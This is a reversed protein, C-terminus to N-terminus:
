KGSKSGGRDTIYLYLLTAGILLATGGIMKKKIGKVKRVYDNVTVIGPNVKRVHLPFARYPHWNRAKPYFVSMYLSQETPFPKFQNLYQYVPGLLQSEITPHTTVLDLSGDYGMGRATSDIFQILGRASGYPNKVLPRFRSEFNILDYLWKKNIGLKLATYILASNQKETLRPM